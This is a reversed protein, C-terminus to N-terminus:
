KTTLKVYRLQRNRFILRRKRISVRVASLSIGLADAAAEESSYVILPRDWDEGERMSFIGVPKLPREPSADRERWEPTSECWRLNEARNDNVDNNVHYVGRQNHPNPVFAEAVLVCVSRYPTSGDAMPIRVTPVSFGKAPTVTILVKGRIYYRAVKGTNSVYINETGEVKCWLEDGSPDFKRPNTM